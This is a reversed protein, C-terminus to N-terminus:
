KIGREQMAGHITDILDKKLMGGQHFFLTHFEGIFVDNEHVESVSVLHTDPDISFHYRFGCNNPFRLKQSQYVSNINELDLGYKRIRVSYRNDM